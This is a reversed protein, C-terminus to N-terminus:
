LLDRDSIVTGDQVLSQVVSWPIQMAAGDSGALAVLAAMAQDDTLHVEESDILVDFLYLRHGMRYKKPVVRRRHPQFVDDHLLESLEEHKPDDIEGMYVQGMFAGLRALDHLPVEQFSGLVLSPRLCKSGVEPGSIIVTGIVGQIRESDDLFKKGFNGRFGGNRLGFWIFQLGKWAGIVTATLATGVAIAGFNIFHGLWFPTTEEEFRRTAEPSRVYKQIRKQLREKSVTTM